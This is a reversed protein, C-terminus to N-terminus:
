SISNPKHRQSLTQDEMEWSTLHGHHPDISHNSCRNSHYLHNIGGHCTTSSDVLSRINPTSVGPYCTGGRTRYLIPQQSILFARTLKDRQILPIPIAIGVPSCPTLPTQPYETTGLILFDYYSRFPGSPIRNYGISPFRHCLLVYSGPSVKTFAHLSRRVECWPLTITSWLCPLM